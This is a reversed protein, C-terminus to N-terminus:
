SPVYEKRSNLQFIKKIIMLVVKRGGRLLFLFWKKLKVSIKKLFIIKKNNKIFFYKDSDFIYLEMRKIVLKYKPFQEYKLLFVELYYYYYYYLQLAYLATFAIYRFISLYHMWNALGWGLKIKNRGSCRWEGITM